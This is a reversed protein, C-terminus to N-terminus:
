IENKFPLDQPLENFMLDSFNALVGRPEELSDKEEEEKNITRKPM